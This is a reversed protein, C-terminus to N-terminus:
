VCAHASLTMIAAESSMDIDQLLGQLGAGDDDQVPHPDIQFSLCAHMCALTHTHTNIQAQLVASGATETSKKKESQVKFKEELVAKWEDKGHEM